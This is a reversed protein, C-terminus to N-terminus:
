IIAQMLTELQKIPVEKSFHFQAVERAGKALVRRLRRDTYLTEMAEAIEQPEISNVYFMEKGHRFFHSLTADGKKALTIVAKGSAAAELISISMGPKRTLSIFCDVESLLSPLSFHPIKGMFKIKGQLKKTEVERELLPRMPGDGVLLLKVKARDKSFREFAELVSTLDQYLHFGGVYCFTFIENEEKKLPNKFFDDDAHFHVVHIKGKRVGVSLLERAYNEAAITILDVRSYVFREMLRFTYYRITSELKGYKLFEVESSALPVSLSRHLIKKHKWSPLWRFVCLLFSTILGRSFYVDYQKFFSKLIRLFFVMLALGTCRYKKRQLYMVDVDGLEKLCQLMQQDNTVGGVGQRDLDAVTVFCICKRLHRSDRKLRPSITKM